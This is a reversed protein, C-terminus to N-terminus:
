RASTRVASSQSRMDHGLRTSCQKLEEPDSRRPNLRELHRDSQTLERSVTARWGYTQEKMQIGHTRGKTYTDWRSSTGGYLQDKTRMDGGRIHGRREYRGETHIDRRSHKEETHIRETHIGRRTYAAAYTQKKMHINTGKTHIDGGHTRGMTSMGEM